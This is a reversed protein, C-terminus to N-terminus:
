SSNPYPSYDSESWRAMEFAFYRFTPYVALALVAGLLLFTTTWRPVGQHIQVNITSTQRHSRQASLRVSYTGAPIASLFVSSIPSGESWSEGGSVGHYYSMEVGFPIVVGTKENYLHGDVYAWSNNVKYARCRIRINQRADLKLSELHQTAAKDAIRFSGHRTISKRQSANNSFTISTSKVLRQPATMHTIVSTLVVAVVLASLVLVHPFTLHLNPQIRGPRRKSPHRLKVAFADAVDTHPIYRAATYHVERTAPQGSASGLHQILENRNMRHLPKQPSPRDAGEDQQPHNTLSFETTVPPPHDGGQEPALAQAAKLLQTRTRGDSIHNSERSLSWPPAIYDTAQVKEGVQVKWYFEGLVVVTEAVSNDYLRYSRGTASIRRAGARYKIPGAPIETGLSWNRESDILWHFPEGPCSLLYEHWPYVTGQWTVQRQLFGIVTFTRGALTGTTGLPIKPKAEPQELKALFALNGQDCDHLADCTGCTVRLSQDPTQVTLPAACSPCNVQVAAVQAKERFAAALTGLGLQVLTVTRGHYLVPPAEGGDLTAVKGAGGSLDAYSVTEGPQPRFPLEGEAGLTTAQGIEVVRMLGAGPITVEDEIDLADVHPLETQAPLQKRYTLAYSGQSEALWGWSRGDRFALYWENWIGGGAHQIQIRGTVVFPKGQHTGQVGVELPSPIDALEAVKGYDHFHGDARGVLSHCSECVLVLSNARGFEVPAGCGPCAAETGM